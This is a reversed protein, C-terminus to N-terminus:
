FHCELFQGMLKGEVRIIIKPDFISLNTKGDAVVWRDIKKEVPLLIEKVEKFNFCAKLSDIHDHQFPTLIGIATKNHIHKYIAEAIFAFAIIVYRNTLSYHNLKIFLINFNIIEDVTPYEEKTVDIGWFKMENLFDQKSVFTPYIITGTRYFDLVYSFLDPNRDFFYSGDEEQKILKENEKSVIRGLLTDPYKNLSQFTTLHIRGGINLKIKDM